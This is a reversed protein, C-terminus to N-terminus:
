RGSAHERLKDATTVLLVDKNASRYTESETEFDTYLATDVLSLVLFEVKLSDIVGQDTIHGATAIHFVKPTDLLILTDTQCFAAAWGCSMAICFSISVPRIM